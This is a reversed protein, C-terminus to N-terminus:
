KTLYNNKELIQVIMKKLEAKVQGASEYDLRRNKSFDFPTDDNKLEKRRRKVLVIQNMEKRLLAYSTEFVVNANPYNKGDEILKSDNGLVGAVNTIDSVIILSKDINDKIAQVIDKAGDEARTSEVIELQQKPGRTENIENISEKLADKIQTRSPNYDSQWSFFIWPRYGIPISLRELYIENESLDINVLHYIGSGDVYFNVKNGLLFDEYWKAQSIESGEIIFGRFGTKLISKKIISFAVQQTKTIELDIIKTNILWCKIPNYKM